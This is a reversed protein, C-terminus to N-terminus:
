NLAGYSNRDVSLDTLNEELASSKKKCVKEWCNRVCSLQTLLCVILVPMPLIFLVCTFLRLSYTNSITTSLSLQLSLDYYTTMNITALNGFLLTDIVNHLREKYPQCMAHLILMGILQIEIYFFSDQQYSIVVTLLIFFRYVFYLGSFFRFEDRFCSQFSDFFPKMKDLPSVLIKVVWNDDIKLFSLLKNHLPYLLLFIPPLILMFVGILIASIAYPLHRSGMWEIEGNYYVVTQNNTSGKGHIQVKTLLMFTSRACQAYCLILFASLGHIVGGKFKMQKKLYHKYTCTCRKFRSCYSMIRTILLVLFVAYFLTLYKFIIIDIAKASKWLCYSLKDHVFMDLSFSLYLLSIIKHLEKFPESFPILDISQFRVVNIVQFYFIFGNVLGSTFPINFFIVLLFIVTVPVIESLLYFLWGLNCSDDSKCNFDLSHFHVSFNKKCQGCLIGTRSESCILHDLEERDAKGPLLNNKTSSCFGKPCYGTVLSNENETENAAYGIWYGEKKYARMLTLNCYDIGVYNYKTILACICSQSEDDHIFGPPCTQLTVEFSLVNQRPSTDTLTVSASDNEKGHLLLVDSSATTFYQSTTISDKGEITVLYTTEVHQGFDDIDIFPLTTQNGPTIILKGFWNENTINTHNVATALDMHRNSPVYTFNGVYNFIDASINPAFFRNYCPILTSAYISHGYRAATNNVFNVSINREAAAKDDDGYYDIFCTKSYNYFLLSSIHEYIAGGKDQAKNGIFNLEADDSIYLVSSLEYIAGGQYGTNNNFSTISNREFISVCSDLYLATEDNNEFLSTAAFTVQHGFCYLVGSGKSYESYQGKKFITRSKVYNRSLNCSTFRLLPLYGRASTYVNWANPFIAVAAGYQGSNEMWSCNTFTVEGDTTALSDSFISSGGGFDASNRLFSVSEFIHFCNKPTVLKHYLTHVYGSYTAGGYTATNNIFQSNIVQAINNLSKDHFTIFLGGGYHDASNGVFTSDSVSISIQESELIYICMGGGKDFRSFGKIISDMGTTAANHLFHCEKFNYDTNSDSLGSEIYIGNGGSHKDYGNGEFVSREIQISGNNYFLALGTGPSNMIAVDTLIINTSNQIIVGAKINHRPLTSVHAMTGCGEFTMNIFTLNRIGYLIIGRESKPINLCKLATSEYGFLAIQDLHALTLNRNLVITKSCFRLLTGSTINPLPLDNISYHSDAGMSCNGNTESSSNYVAIVTKYDMLSTSHLFLSVVIALQILAPLAVM